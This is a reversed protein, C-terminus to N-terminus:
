RREVRELVAAPIRYDPLRKRFDALAKDAEDHRGDARLKAIRELEQEPTEPLAPKAAMLRAAAPAPGSEPMRAAEADRRSLSGEASAVGAAPAAASAAQDAAKDQLASPFPQPAAPPTPVPKASSAEKRIQVPAAPAPAPPADPTKAVLVKEQVPAPQEHQIRLTVVVSLVVVAALSLPVSWRQVWGRRPRRAAALIAEDLARPPEEAGLARYAASVQPDGVREAREKESETM